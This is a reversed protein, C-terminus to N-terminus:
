GMGYRPIKHNGVLPMYSFSLFFVVYMQLKFSNGERKCMAGEVKSATYYRSDVLKQFNHAGLKHPM